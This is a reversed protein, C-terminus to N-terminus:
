SIRAAGAQNVIFQSILPISDDGPNLVEIDKYNHIRDLRELTIVESECIKPM